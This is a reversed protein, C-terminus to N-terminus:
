IGRGGPPHVSFSPRLEVRDLRLGRGGGFLSVLLAPGALSAAVGTVVFIGAGIIAGLGIAFADFLGLSRKLEM